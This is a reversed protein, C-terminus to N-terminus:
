APDARALFCGRQANHLHLYAAPRMSFMRDITTELKTGECIAADVMMGASDFARASIRRIRLMEPVEDTAFHAARAGERVFIAHSSRYPSLAPQHEYNMLLASEGVAGDRLSVRCPFGPETDVVVREVGHQALYESPQGFLHSFQGGDLGQIQFRM